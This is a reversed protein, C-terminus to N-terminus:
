RRFVADAKKEVTESICSRNGSFDVAEYIIVYLNEQPLPQVTIYVNELMGSDDSVQIRNNLTERAVNSVYRTKATLEIVPPNTDVAESQVTQGRDTEQVPAITPVPAPTPTPTPIPTPTPAPTPTPTPTQVPKPTAQQEEIKKASVFPFLASNQAPQASPASTNEDTVRISRKIMRAEKKDNSCQYIIEYTGPKNIDVKGFVQIQATIDKKDADKATVGELFDFADSVQVTKEEVGEFKVPVYSDEKKEGKEKDTPDKTESDSLHPAKPRGLPGAEKADDYIEVKTGEPCNKAIWKADAAVLQISSGSVAKGLKNFQEVDLDNQNQSFYPVSQFAVDDVIRTAYQCFTGDANMQWRCNEGLQFVGIPTQTKGASCLMSRVPLVYKGTDDAGYVTVCNKSRNVKIEYPYELKSADYGDKIIPSYETRGNKEEGAKTKTNENKGGAQACGCCALMVACTLILIRRKM